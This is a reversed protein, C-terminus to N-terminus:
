VSESREPLTQLILTCSEVYDDGVARLPMETTLTYGEAGLEGIDLLTYYVGLFVM